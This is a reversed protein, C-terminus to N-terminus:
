TAAIGIPWHTTPHEYADGKILITNMHAFLETERTMGEVLLFCLCYTKFPVLVPDLLDKFAKPTSAECIRQNLKVIDRIKIKTSLPPTLYNTGPTCM